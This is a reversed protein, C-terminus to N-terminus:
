RFNTDSLSAASQMAQRLQGPFFACNVKGTGLVMQLCNRGDETMLEDSQM